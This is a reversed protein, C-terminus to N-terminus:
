RINKTIAVKVNGIVYLGPRLSKADDATADKKVLVGGITYIDAKGSASAAFVADIGAVGTVACTASLNSGDTTTVTIKASGSGTITALGNADVTVVAENSSNWTLAQSAAKEPLVTATLQVQDGIEGSISTQSLTISSALIKTVTVTCTASLNSGDTTTVTIDASGPAVAKVLGNGDVTAVAENSSKWTLAQSAAKDPLVTATLQVEEDEKISATTQNLTISSALIKTVTVACTASLNSGDTTTVTITASGPAVAKVLGNGDVTAVATNSSKWTLTQSAVKVPLVTATLQVEEDEKISATTQSLTISSALIKTVTVTCTASLNSGDTTTVTIDASGPAVAKVLGNGDVTAVATNSSKWTLTQSAAKAPLVTATLKVEEDEKITATTQSLTISSALIKTVTVACTASLNSGDTTTVTITASGPAIAKVLGNGDVTAVATNSSKWTLAQSAVDAPLVTAKLQLQSDEVISATTQSLTISTAVKKTVTVACTASLNTGDTTTVTITASGPAIAKVLGNGDVTAVATNSSKWTLAQSAAKDPKVTATLQIQSGEVASATTQSLTISQALSAVYDNYEAETVLKLEKPTGAPVKLYTRNAPIFDLSPTIYGLKGESTTGLMRMTNPDFAVRNYHSKMPNNFYVGKLMNDSPKSASGAGVNLKCNAPQDSTTEIFVPTEAAVGGTLEKMVAMGYAVKSVYWAKMGTSNFTYPFETYFARYYKGGVAIDSKVGLYNDTTNIPKIWWKRYNGSTESSMVGEDCDAKEGDGLYKTMGDKSGYAYYTGDNNKRLSVYTSIIEYIGTGQSQIDYKSGDVNKVYCITAPDSSAKDFGLWLQIAYMDATTTAYDLRGKDDTVYVYRGTMYNQIRYYGNGNVQAFTSVASLLLTSLIINFRM